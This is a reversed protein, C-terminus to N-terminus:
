CDSHPSPIVVTVGKSSPQQFVSEQKRLTWVVGLYYFERIKQPLMKNRLIKNMKKPYQSTDILEWGVQHLVSLTIPVLDAQVLPM